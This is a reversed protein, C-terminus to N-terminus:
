IEEKCDFRDFFSDLFSWNVALPVETSNVIKKVTRNRIRHQKTAIIKLKNNQLFKSKLILGIAAYHQQVKIIKIFLPSARRTASNSFPSIMVSTKNSQFYYNHPLGFIIREPHEEIKNKNTFDLMLDHDRKFNREARIGGPLEGSDGYSRYKLLEFGISNLLKNVDSDIKLLCARSYRSFRSYLLDNIQIQDEEKFEALFNEINIKLDKVNKSQIYELEDGNKIEEIHFSGLGRRSRAGIGGFYSLAILAKIISNKISKKCKKNLNRFYINIKGNVPPLVYEKIDDKHKKIGYTLYSLGYENKGYGKFHGKKFYDVEANLIVKSKGVSKDTSSFIMTENRYLEDITKLKFYKWAIARWWFRLAGKFSSLRFEAKSQDYGRLFLPTVIEFKVSIHEYEKM